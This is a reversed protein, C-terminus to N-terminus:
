AGAGIRQKCSACEGCPESGGAYCSWTLDIPLHRRLCEAVVETKTMQITPAVIYVGPPMARSLAAVFAPRCDYYDADDDRIAGYYVIGGGAAEVMNAAHALLILNRAPYYNSPQRLSKIWPLRVVDGPVRLRETIARSAAHEKQFADQGYDFLIARVDDTNDMAIRLALLSDLGGSLLVLSRGRLVRRVRGCSSCRVMGTSTDRLIKEDGGCRPCTMPEPM